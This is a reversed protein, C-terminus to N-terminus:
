QLLTETEPKFLNQVVNEMGRIQGHWGLRNYFRFTASGVVGGTTCGTKVLRIYNTLCIDAYSRVERSVLLFNYM